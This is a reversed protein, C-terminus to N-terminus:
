LQAIESNLFKDSDLRLKGSRLADHEKLVELLGDVDDFVTDIICLNWPLAATGAAGLMDLVSVGHVYVQSLRRAEISRLSQALDTARFKYNEQFLVLKELAPLQSAVLAGMVSSDLPNGLLCLERLHEHRTKRMTSCGCIFARKLKPCAE